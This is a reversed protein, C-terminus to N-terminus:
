IIPEQQVTSLTDPDMGSFYFLSKYILHMAHPSVNKFKMFHCIMQYYDPSLILGKARPSPREVSKQEYFNCIQYGFDFALYENAYGKLLNRLATERPKMPLESEGFDLDAFEIVPSIRRVWFALHGSQKFHDLGNVLNREHEKVRKLDALWSGHAEDLRPRSFTPYLRAPGMAGMAFSSFTKAFTEEDKISELTEKNFRM